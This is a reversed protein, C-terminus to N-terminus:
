GPPTAEDLLEFCSLSTFTNGNRLASREFRTGSCPCTPRSGSVAQTDGKLQIDDM